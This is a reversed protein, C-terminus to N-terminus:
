YKVKDTETTIQVNYITFIKNQMSRELLLLKEM